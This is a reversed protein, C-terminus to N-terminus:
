RERASAYGNRGAEVCVAVSLRKGLCVRVRTINWRRKHCLQNCGALVQVEKRCRWTEPLSIFSSAATQWLGVSHMRKLSPYICYHAHRKWPFDSCSWLTQLDFPCKLFFGSGSVEIRNIQLGWSYITELFLLKSPFCQQECPIVHLHDKSKCKLLGKLSWSVAPYFFFFESLPYHFYTIYM